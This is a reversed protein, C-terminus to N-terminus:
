DPRAEQSRGPASTSRAGPTNKATCMAPGTAMKARGLVGMKPPIFCKRGAMGKRHTTAPAPTAHIRRARGRARADPGDAAREARSRPRKGKGARPSRSWVSGDQHARANCYTPPRSQRRRWGPCSDGIRPNRQGGAAVRSLGAGAPRWGCRSAHHTARRRRSTREHRVSASRYQHRPPQHASAQAIRGRAADDQLLM